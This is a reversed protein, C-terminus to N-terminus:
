KEQKKRLNFIANRSVGYEKAIASDGKGAEIKKLIEKKQEPNLKPPYKSNGGVNAWELNEHHYNTYDGDKHKATLKPIPPMGQWCELVLRAVGIQNGKYYIFRFPHYGSKRVKVEMESDNLLIESGDENVKLHEIEPHYRFEKM